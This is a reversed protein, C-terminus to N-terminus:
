GFCITTIVTFYTPYHGGVSNQWFIVTKSPNYTHSTQNLSHGMNLCIHIFHSSSCTTTVFYTPITLGVLNQGYM